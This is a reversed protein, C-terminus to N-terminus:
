RIAAKLQALAQAVIARPCGVNMRM